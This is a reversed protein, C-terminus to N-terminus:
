LPNPNITYPQTSNFRFVNEGNPHESQESMKQVRYAMIRTGYITGLSAFLAIHDITRQTQKVGYHRAVNGCAKLFGKAEDETLEWAECNTRQAILAHIGILLGEIGSLDLNGVKKEQGTGGRPGRPQGADSRRKRGSGSGSAPEGASAGSDALTGFDVGANGQNGDDGNGADRYETPM